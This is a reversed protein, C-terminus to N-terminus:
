SPRPSGRDIFVPNSLALMFGQADRVELCIYTSDDATTTWEIRTSGQSSLPARHVEGRPTVLAVRGSQTGRIEALVTIPQGACRLRDGMGAAKNGASVVFDLEIGASSTMSSHGVRLAALVAEATLEDARVVSHPVGLQGKLHVDSSGIAPGWSKGPVDSALTQRWERLAAENDANWSQDGAWPGNWVEVLDFGEYPYDFRGTPYPAFPHAAVSLGGASRVSEVCERYADDNADYRWEVVRGPTLGLALWHGSLTTVEQGLIILLDNDALAKWEDHADATNHETAALFDLGLERAEAALQQPSM